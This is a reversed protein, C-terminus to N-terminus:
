FSRIIVDDLEGGLGQVLDAAFVPVLQALRALFAGRLGELVGAPRQQLVGAIEGVALEVRESRQL